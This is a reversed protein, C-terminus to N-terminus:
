PVAPVDEFGLRSFSPHGLNRWLTYGLDTPNPCARWERIIKGSNSILRVRHGQRHHLNVKKLILGRETLDLDRALTLEEEGATLEVRLGAPGFQLQASEAAILSARFEDIDGDRMPAPTDIELRWGKAAQLDSRFENTLLASQRVRASSCGRTPKGTKKTITNGGVVACINKTGVYRLGPNIFNTGASEFRNGTLTVHEASLDAGIQLLPTDGPPRWGVRNGHIAVGDITGGQWTMLLLAGQRQSLRASTGNRLCLNDAVVSDVTPGFAGFVSVCYGATDHGFNGQVTNRINAFDIDFAGGDVGPSDSLFAENDRVVCDVCTWTWIANPTGITEQAQMGTHWAVSRAILADKAAFIVIGDGQVDHVISNLIKVHTASSVFIGSWQTTRYAMVGDIQVDELRADPQDGKATIVVLGSAKRMLNGRVDHVRLDRLYVHHLVKTESQILIGYVNGGALDLQSIEWFEQDHLELAAEDTPGSEIRPLHGEGYVGLRIPAGESGSGKPKLAGRCLTGRKMLVRDGRM